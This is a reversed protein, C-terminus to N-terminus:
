KKKHFIASFEKYSVHGNKSKDIWKFLQEM